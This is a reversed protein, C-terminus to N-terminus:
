VAHSALVEPGIKMGSLKLSHLPKRQMLYQVFELCGAPTLNNHTINVFLIDERIQFLSIVNAFVVADIAM